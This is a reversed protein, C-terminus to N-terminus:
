ITQRLRVKGTVVIQGPQLDATGDLVLIEDFTAPLHATVGGPLTLTLERAGDTQTWAVGVDGQPLPVFGQATELLDLAPDVLITSCGPAAPHVGLVWRPLFYASAASWGHCFSRTLRAGALAGPFTEWATTAGARLMRGWLAEMTRVLKAREGMKAMAELWFFAMWPSGVRVFGEPPDTIIAAVRERHAEPVVDALYLVIQTQQSFVPSRTGDDRIADTYAQRADDWAHNRIAGALLAAQERFRDGEAGAELVDAMKAAARLAWVALGNQHIVVGHNPTDMPAWDLMNWANIAFLGDGNRRSLVEALTARVATFSEGLFALDGTFEFHELVALIWLFAWAPLINQWGSPVQSEPLPSRGLSPAVLTLGHRPMGTEGFAAYAMLAETRADGVWYTQEYAPCDVFTDEMCLRVTRTSMAYAADLLPHDSTFTGRAMVPYVNELVSLDYLATAGTAERITLVLYRFGRRVVSEVHQFGDRAVYRMVNHLTPPYLLEGDQVAEVGVLDLITGASANLGLDFYGVTEEGWDFVLEVDGGPGVELPGSGGHMGRAPNSVTPSETTAEAAVTQLYADPRWIKRDPVPEFRALGRITEWPVGGRVSKGLTPAETAVVLQGEGGSEALPMRGLIVGEERVGFSFNMHHHWGDVSFFVDHNGPELFVKSEFLAALPTARSWAIPQGDLWGPGDFGTEQRVLTATLPRDVRLRLGVWADKLVVPNASTDGRTLAARLDAALTMRPAQVRRASVLRVPRKQDLTLPAIPREHLRGWPEAGDPGLLKVGQWVPLPRADFSEVFGQQCNIRPTNTEYGSAAAASWTDDSVIRESGSLSSFEAEVWLGGRQLIYQFTSVGPQTVLVRIENSGGPRLYRGVDYADYSWRGPWGRVPGSGVRHRNVWLTYRADASIRLHGAHLDQPLEFMKRFLVWGNDPIDPGSWIWEPTRETM